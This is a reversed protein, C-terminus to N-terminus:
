GTPWVPQPNQPATSPILAAIMSIPKAASDPTPNRLHNTEGFRARHLLETPFTRRPARADSTVAFDM